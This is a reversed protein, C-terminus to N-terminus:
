SDTAGHHFERRREVNERRPNARLCKEGMEVCVGSFAGLAPMSIAKQEPSFMAPSM